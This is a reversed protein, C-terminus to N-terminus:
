WINGNLGCQPFARWPKGWGAPPIASLAFFTAASPSPALTRLVVLLELCLSLSPFRSLSPSNSLHQFPSSTLSHTFLPSPSGHFRTRTPLQVCLCVFLISLCLLVCSRSCLNYLSTRVLFPTVPLNNFSLCLTLVLFSLLLSLSLIFSPSRNSLYGWCISLKQGLKM